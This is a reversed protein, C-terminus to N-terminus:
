FPKCYRKIIGYATKIGLEGAKSLDNCGNIEDKLFILLIGRNFYAAELKTDCTIALSFDNLAGEYDNQDYKIIGRNYWAPAFLPDLNLAKDLNKKAQQMIEQSTTAVNANEENIANIFDVLALNSISQYFYTAPNLSDMAISQKFLAFAENFQHRQAYRYALDVLAGAKDKDQTGPPQASIALTDKNSMSDNKCVVKIIEHHKGPHKFAVVHMMENAVTPGLLPKYLPLMQVNSWKYQIEENLDSKAVFDGGQSLLKMLRMGEVYKATDSLNKLQQSLAKSKAEDNRGERIRNLKYNVIARNYYADPNEPSIALVHDLDGLALLYKNQNYYIISRNYYALFNSPSIRLVKDYDQLAKDYEKRDSYIIARNFYANMNTESLRIVQNLYHLAITDHKLNLELMALQYYALANTSDLKLAKFYDFRASDNKEISSFAIGRQIYTFPNFRNIHIATEFSEIANRYQHMGNLAQGKIIQPNEFTPNLRIAHDCDKIAPVFQNLSLLTLARDTYITADNSDLKIAYQFDAFAGQYNALKDRNCARYTFLVSWYPNLSIAHTFDQEAGINDDLRFKAFGRYFYAEYQDTRANIAVNLKEIAVAFHGNNLAIKGQDLFGIRQQAVSVLVCFLFVCTGRFKM